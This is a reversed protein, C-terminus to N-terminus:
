KFRFASENAPVYSCPPASAVVKRSHCKPCDYDTTMLMMGCEGCYGKSKGTSDAEHTQMFPKKLLTQLRM